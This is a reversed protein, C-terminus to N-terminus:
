KESSYMKEKLIYMGIATNCISISPCRSFSAKPSKEFTGALELDSYYRSKSCRMKLTVEFLELLEDLLAPNEIYNVPAFVNKICQDLTATGNLENLKEETYAWRSPFGQGYVDHFGLDNFFEVLMPGSRYQSKENIIERLVQITKPSLKM